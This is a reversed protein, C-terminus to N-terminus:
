RMPDVLKKIKGVAAKSFTETKTNRTWGHGNAESGALFPISPTEDKVGDEVVFTEKM